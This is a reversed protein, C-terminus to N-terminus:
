EAWSVPKTNVAQVAIDMVLHSGAVPPTTPPTYNTFLAPAQDGADVTASTYYYGDSGLVWGSGPLGTFETPEFDWAAVINGDDDQWNAVIVARLYAAVNGTNTIVVNQKVGGDIEDTITVNMDDPNLTFTHLEGAALTLASGLAENIKVSVTKNEGNNISYKVELEADASLTQPILWFTLSLDDENLNKVGSVEAVGPVDLTYDTYVPTGPLSWSVPNTQGLTILASGAKVIHKLSVQKIVTSNADNGIAFKVGTLAHHFQVPFGQAPNAEFATKTTSCGGFLIDDQGAADDITYSFSLSHGDSTIAYSTGDPFGPMGAFFYLEDYSVWPSTEFIHTWKGSESMYKFEFPSSEGLSAPSSGSYAVAKFKGYLTSVNNSNAPTGKTMVSDAAFSPLSLSTVSEVFRLPRGDEMLGLDIVAERALTDATAAARTVPASDMINFMITKGDGISALMDEPMLDEPICAVMSFAAAAIAIIHSIKMKM